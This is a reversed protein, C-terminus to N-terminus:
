QLISKPIEGPDDRSQTQTKNVIQVVDSSVPESEFFFGKLQWFNRNDSLNM